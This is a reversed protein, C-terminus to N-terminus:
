HRGVTAPRRRVLAYIAAGSLRHERILAATVRRWAAGSDRRLLARARRVAATAWPGFAPDEELDRWSRLVGVRVACRALVVVDTATPATFPVHWFEARRDREAVVGAAAVTACAAPNAEAAKRLRTRGSRHPRDVIDAYVLPLGLRAAVVAHAAEHRAAQRDAARTGATSRM